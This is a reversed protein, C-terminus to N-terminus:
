ELEYQGSEMQKAMRQARNPTQRAWRSNLMEAAAKKYDGSATAALMNKFGLLGAVGLQYAMCVLVVQRPESLGALHPKIAEACQQALETLWLDGVSQPLVFQYQKVDAGQPGIRFGWGV